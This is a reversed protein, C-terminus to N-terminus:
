AVVVGGARKRLQSRIGTFLGVAQGGVEFQAGEVLGGDPAVLKRYGQAGCAQLAALALCRPRAGCKSCLKCAAAALRHRRSEQSRAERSALLGTPLAAREFFLAKDSLRVCGSGNCARPSSGWTAAFTSAWEPRFPCIGM